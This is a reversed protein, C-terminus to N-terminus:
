VDFGGNGSPPPPPPTDERPKEPKEVPATWRVTITRGVPDSSVVEGFDIKGAVAAVDSSVPSAVVRFTGNTGNSTVGTAGTVEKVRDMLMVSAGSPVDVVILTITNAAGAGAIQQQSRAVAEQHKRMVEAQMQGATPMTPPTFPAAVRMQEALMDLQQRSVELTAVGVTAQFEAMARRMEDRAGDIAAIRKMETEVRQKAAARRPEYKARIRQQEAVFEQLRVVKQEPPLPEIEAKLTEFKKKREELHTGEERIAAALKEGLAKVKPVAAKATEADTVTALIDGLGESTEVATRAAREERSMGVAALARDWDVLTLLAILGILAVAGGGIGVALGTPFPKHRRKAKPKAARSVPMALAADEVEGLDWDDEAAPVAVAGGCKKCRVRKGALHDPVAYRSSCTGCTANVAM